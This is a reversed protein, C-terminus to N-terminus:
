EKIELDGLYDIMPLLVPSIIKSFESIRNYVSEGNNEKKENYEKLVSLGVLVLAYKYRAELLKPDSKSQTKIENLLYLNDLNIYFDYGGEGTDIM